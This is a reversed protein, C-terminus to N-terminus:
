LGEHGRYFGICTFDNADASIIRASSEREEATEEELCQYNGPTFIPVM